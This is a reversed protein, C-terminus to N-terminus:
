AATTKKRLPSAHATEPAHESVSSLPVRTLM